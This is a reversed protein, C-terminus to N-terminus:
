QLRDPTRGRVGPRRSVRECPRHEPRILRQQVFWDQDRESLSKAVSLFRELDRHLPGSAHVAGYRLIADEILRFTVGSLKLRAHASGAITVGGGHAVIQMLSERTVSLREIPPNHPRAGLHRELYAKAFDGTPLDTVVFHKDRLDCWSVTMQDALPDGDPLVLYLPESWLSAVNLGRSPSAGAVVGVDLHGRRVAAILEPASGESFRVRIDPRDKRFVEFLEPLFGMTLPGFLGIAICREITARSRAEEFASDIKGIGLRSTELFLIGMQTLKVGAPHRYFLRAGISVEVERIRRSIASQEIGLRRGARRFSGAEAAAIVYRIQRLSIQPSVPSTIKMLGPGRNHCRSRLTYAM